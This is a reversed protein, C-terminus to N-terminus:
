TFWGEAHQGHFDRIRDLVKELEEEDPLITTRFHFHGPRQGFGSGPVTVVGTRDVMEMCYVADAPTALSIAKKMVYGKITVKPFAYMAGEIPQCEIGDIENLRKTVLVARRKLSALKEKRDKDYAERSPGGEPPPTVSDAMMAQGLTNSCLNVSLLKNMEAQVEPDVNYTHVLGGRLGCEGFYGKSISHLSFVECTHGTEKALNRFSLWKKDDTYINDQYVEDAVLALREREAFSLVVQMAEKSLVQGTPNGPNIVVIARPSIGSARAESISRELEAAEISWGGEENLFYGIAQGGLLSMTASYLPYQPIPLLVGDQPGRVLMQMILKASVSAGDTLHIDEISTDMGDRATLFDAVKERFVAHGKSESYAGLKGDRIHELYYAARERVDEPFLGPRQLLSPEVLCALVQRHFLLPEAGVAQPNGINCPVVKDFQMPQGDERPLKKKLRRELDEAKAVVAGRVAYKCELVNKPLNSISLTSFAAPGEAWPLRQLTWGPRASRAALEHAAKRCGAFRSLLM